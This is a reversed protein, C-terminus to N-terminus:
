FLLPNAGTGFFLPSEREMRGSERDINASERLRASLAEGEAQARAAERARDAGEVLEPELSKMWAPGAKCNHCKQPGNSAQQSGCELCRYITKM